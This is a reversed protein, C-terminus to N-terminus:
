FTHNTIKHKNSVTPRGLGPNLYSGNIWKFSVCMCMYNIEYDPFAHKRPVQVHIIYLLSRTMRSFFFYM